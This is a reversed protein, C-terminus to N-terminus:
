GLLREALAETLEEAGDLMFGLPKILGFANEKVVEYAKSMATMVPFPIERGFVCLRDAKPIYIASASRGYINQEMVSYARGMGLVAAFACILIVSTVCFSRLIIKSRNSM